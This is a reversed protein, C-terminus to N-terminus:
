KSFDTPDPRRGIKRVWILNMKTIFDLKLSFLGLILLNRKMSFRFSFVQFSIYSYSKWESIDRVKHVRQNQLIKYFHTIKKFKV